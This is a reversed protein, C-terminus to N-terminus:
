RSRRGESKAGDLAGRLRDREARVKRLAAAIPERKQAPAEALRRELRDVERTLRYLDQALLRISM